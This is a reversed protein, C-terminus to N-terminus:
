INKRWTLPPIYCLLEDCKEELSTGKIKGNRQVKTLKQFAEKAQEIPTRTQTDWKGDDILVSGFCKFRQM